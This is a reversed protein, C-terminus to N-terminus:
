GVFNSVADRGAQCGEAAGEALQAVGNQSKMQAVGAAFNEAIGEHLMTGPALASVGETVAEAFAGQGEGATFVLGPSTCFQGVGMAVSGVLGEAIQAGREALAGPLVFIPNISSMEAYVPIPVERAAAADM